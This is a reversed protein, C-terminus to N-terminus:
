YSLWLIIVYLKGNQEQKVNINSSCNVSYYQKDQM